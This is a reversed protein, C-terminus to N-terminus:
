QVLHPRYAIRSVVIINLTHLRQQVIVDMHLGTYKRLALNRATRFLNSVFVCSGHQHPCFPKESSEVFGAPRPQGDM